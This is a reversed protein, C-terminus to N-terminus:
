AGAAKADSKNSIVGLLKKVQLQRRYETVESKKAEGPAGIASKEGHSEQHSGSAFAVASGFTLAALLTISATSSLITRKIKM